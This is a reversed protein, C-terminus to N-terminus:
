GYNDKNKNNIKELPLSETNVKKWNGNRRLINIEYSDM